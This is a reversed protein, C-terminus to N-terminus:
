VVGAEKLQTGLSEVSDVFIGIGGNRNIADLFERQAASLVGDVPRKCEVALFRGDPCIGLFDSSGTKGYRIFRDRYKYAGSNNRWHYIKRLTLFEDVVRLVDGESIKPPSSKGEQKKRMYRNGEMYSEM